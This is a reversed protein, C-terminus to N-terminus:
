VKFGLARAVKRQAGDATVFVLEDDEALLRGEREAVALHIADLTAIRHDSVLQRARELTPRPDLDVATFQGDAALDLEAQLYIRQFPAERLRRARRAAVLGRAVEVRALESSVVLDDASFLLEEYHQHEPEDPLYARLIASSDTFLVTM